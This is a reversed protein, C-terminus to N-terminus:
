PTVHSVESMTSVSKEAASSYMKENTERAKRCGLRNRQAALTLAVGALMGSVLLAVGLGILCGVSLLPTPRNYPVVIDQADGKTNTTTTGDADADADDEGADYTWDPNGM